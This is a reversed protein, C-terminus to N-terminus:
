PLPFTLVLLRSAAFFCCACVLFSAVMGNRKPGCAYGKAVHLPPCRVKGEGGGTPFFPSSILCLSRGRFTASKRIVKKDPRFM